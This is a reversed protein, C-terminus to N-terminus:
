LGGDEAGAAGAGAGGAGAGGDEDGSAGGDKDGSAGGTLVAHCRALIQQYQINELVPTVSSMAEKMPLDPAGSPRAIVERTTFKTFRVGDRHGRPDMVDDNSGVSFLTWNYFLNLEWPTAVGAGSMSAMSRIEHSLLYRNAAVSVRKCGLAFPKWNPLQLKETLISRGPVEVILLFWVSRTDLATDKPIKVSGLAFMDTDQSSVGMWGGKPFINELEGFAPPSGLDFTESRIEGILSGHGGADGDSGSLKDFLNKSSASAKGGTSPYGCHAQFRVCAMAPSRSPRLTSPHFPDLRKLKQEPTAFKASVSFQSTYTWVGCHECSVLEAPSRRERRFLSRAVEHAFVQVVLAVPNLFLALSPELMM